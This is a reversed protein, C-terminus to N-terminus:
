KVGNLWSQYRVIHEIEVVTSHLQYIRESTEDDMLELYRTGINDYADLVECIALKMQAYFSKVDRKEITLKFYEGVFMFEEVDPEDSDGHLVKPAIINYMTSFELARREFEDLKRWYCIHDWVVFGVIALVIAVLIAM